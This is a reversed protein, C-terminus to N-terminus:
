LRLIQCSDALPPEIDFYEVSTRNEKSVVQTARAIHFQRDPYKPQIDRGLIGAAEQRSAWSGSWRKAEYGNNSLIIFGLDHM